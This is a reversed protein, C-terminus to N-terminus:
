PVGSVQGNGSRQVPGTVTAGGVDVRANASASISNQSGNLSGGTVTVRSNAQAEIVVPATVNMNDLTLHCNGTTHFAPSAALTVTMGSLIPADNGGCSFTSAGDWTAATGGGTSGPTNGADMEAKQRMVFFIVGGFVSAFLCLFVPILVLGWIFSSIKNTVQRQARDMQRQAQHMPDYAM